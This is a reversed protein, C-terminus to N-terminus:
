LVQWPALDKNMRALAAQVVEVNGAAVAKGLISIKHQGLKDTIVKAVGKPLHPQIM